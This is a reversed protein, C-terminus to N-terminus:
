VIDFIIVPGTYGQIDKKFFSSPMLLIAMQLHVSEERRFLFNFFQRDYQQHFFGQVVQSTYFRTHLYYHSLSGILQHLIEAM